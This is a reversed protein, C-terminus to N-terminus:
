GPDLPRGDGDRVDVAQRHVPRIWRLAVVLAVHARRLVVDPCEALPELVEVRGAAGALAERHAEHLIEVLRQHLVAPGVLVIATWPLETAFQDVDPLRVVDSLGLDPVARRWRVDDLALHRRQHPVRRRAAPPGIEDVHRQDM